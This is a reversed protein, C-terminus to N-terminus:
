GIVEYRYNASEGMIERMKKVVLGSDNSVDEKFLINKKDVLDILCLEPIAIEFLYLTWADEDDVIKTYASHEVNYRISYAGTSINKNYAAMLNEKEVQFAVGQFNEFLGHPPIPEEEVYFECKVKDLKFGKLPKSSMSLLRCVVEHKGKVSFKSQTVDLNINGLLNSKSNAAVTVSENFLEEIDTNENKVIIKLKVDIAKDSDNVVKASINDLREGWNIRLDDQRPFTPTPMEIRIDKVALPSPPDEELFFTCTKTDMLTGNLDLRCVVEHKGKVSFKSQAVDLNINGLLNSKRNAAVTVSENFLEEIDANKNKVAIKLNVYIDEDSDNVVKASINDLHEGWNIRLDAPRPFTPTPMEIRIDKATGMGVTNSFGMKQAFKNLARLARKEANKQQEKQASKKKAGWNLKKEAFELYEAVLFEKLNMLGEKRFDLSYHELGEAKRLIDDWGEELTVYGYIHDRMESPLEDLQLCCVKMGLRQIAIGKLEDDVNKSEDYVIHLKKCKLNSGSFKGLPIPKCEETVWTKVTKTDKDPMNTPYAKVQQTKGNVIVNIEADYKTIIEWWTAGIHQLIKGNKIDDKVEKLPNVIVVRTGVKKLQEKILGQSYDQMTKWGEDGDIHHIPCKAGKAYRTGWRYTGDDRLTDYFISLNESAGVFVFKGRGRSGLLEKDKDKNNKFALNEFRVWREERPFDQDMQDATFVKGTLGSTGEDTMVLLTLDPGEILEFTFKWNKGQNKGKKTLRADWGNQIADKQVAHSLTARKDYYGDLIEQIENPWNVATPRFDDKDFGGTPDYTM